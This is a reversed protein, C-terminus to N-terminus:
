LRSFGQGVHGARCQDWPRLILARLTSEPSRPSIVSEVYDRLDKQEAVVRWRTTSLNPQDAM